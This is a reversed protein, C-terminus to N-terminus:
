IYELCSLRLNSKLFLNNFKLNTLVAINKLFHKGKYHTNIFLCLSRLYQRNTKSVLMNVNNKLCWDIFEDFNFLLISSLVFYSFVNTKEKFLHSNSGTILDSYSLGM